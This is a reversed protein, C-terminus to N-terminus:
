LEDYDKFFGLQRNTIYTIAYTYEAPELYVNKDGIYIKVGNAYNVVHYPEYDGNKLVQKVKFSIRVNCGLKNKYKTPFTRYIGRRIQDGAAVVKIFESVSMSGDELISIYCQYNLIRENQETAFNSNIPSFIFIFLVVASLFIRFKM